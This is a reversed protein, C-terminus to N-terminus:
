KMVYVPVNKLIGKSLAKSHSSVYIDIKNGKIAGGTDEAIYVHNNIMVKSGLPIVKPDVAITRGETPHTGSATKGGAWKGCCKSCNCYHTIKFNGIFRKSNKINEIKANLSLNEKELAIKYNNCEHWKQSLVSDLGDNITGENRLLEATIHLQNKIEKIQEIKINNTTIQAKYEKITNARVTKIGHMGICSILIVVCLLILLIKNHNNKITNNM